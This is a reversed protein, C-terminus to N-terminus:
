ELVYVGKEGTYHFPLKRKACTKKWRKIFSPYNSADAIITKPQLSDILQDLNIKPSRSLLVILNKHKVPPYIATSNIIYLHKNQIRYSNFLSDKDIKEIQHHIGYNKFGSIKISDNTYVTAKLGNHAVLVSSKNQHWIYLAKQQKHQWLLGMYYLQFFLLVVLLSKLRNFGWNYLLRIFCIVLVYALILSVWNFSINSFVFAEQAAIHGVINNITWIISNYTVAIFQPLLNFAALFLVIFGSALVFGMAPIILLNSIFFLGPFQHFYFLSLPLVGIQASLSVALLQWSYKLTKNKPNYWANIKPFCIVIALVAAYSLQFGVQFLMLPAITLTFFASLALINYTNTIRNSYYAFTLFSFMTTARIISPSLGALVAYMWLFLLSISLIYTKGNKLYALPSLVWKLLVLIIGIHLGSVALLHIAGAKQYQENIDASLQQRQGLLLAQIVALEDTGFVSTNINKLLYSRSKAAWGRLSTTMSTGIWFHGKKVNIKYDINKLHMYKKYNFAAPYLPPSLLNAQAFVNLQNDIDLVPDEAKKFSLLLKGQVSNTHLNKVDAIYQQSYANPKLVQTISLHWSQEKDTIFHAFHNKSNSSFSNFYALLGVSIASLVFFLYYFTKAKKRSLYYSSAFGLFSFSTLGLVITFSPKFFHSLLIGLILYGVLQVSLFRTIPM